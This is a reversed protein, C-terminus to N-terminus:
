LNIKKIHNKNISKYNIFNKSMQWFNNVSDTCFLEINNEQKNKNLLKKEQLINKLKKATPRGSEIIKINKYITKKILHKLVPYHTCGLILVDIKSKNKFKKLYYDIADQAIKHHCLNYEVISALLPTKQVTFNNKKNIKNLYTKYLNYKVTACTGILGIHKTKSKNWAIEATPTIVDIVPVKSQKIIKNYATSAITNCAIVLAKIQKKHLFNVIETSYQIITNKSKNGYPVRGTDGLYIFNEKPLTKILQSLVTLGGVGSDFVGIPLQNYKTM